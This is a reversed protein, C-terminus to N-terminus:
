IADLAESLRTFQNSYLNTHVMQKPELLEYYIVGKQDWWVCLMLKKRHIELKLTHLPKQGPSLWQKKNVYNDYYIWKEDGTVIKWLFSKKKTKCQFFRLYETSKGYQNGVIQASGM